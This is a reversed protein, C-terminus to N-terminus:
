RTSNGSASFPAEVKLGTTRNGTIIFFVAIMILTVQFEMGRGENGMGMNVSNWGNQFHVM